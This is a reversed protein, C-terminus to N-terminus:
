KVGGSAIPQPKVLKAFPVPAIQVAQQALRYFLKGRSASTRRNFRFTFENLYDDFHEASVAGQHTGMLWRKLLCTARDNIGQIGRAGNMWLKITSSHSVVFGLGGNEDRIPFLPVHYRFGVAPPGGKVHRFDTPAGDKAYKASPPSRCGEVLPERHLSTEPYVPVHYRFVLMTDPPM